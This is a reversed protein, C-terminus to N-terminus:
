RSAAGTMAFPRVHSVLLATFQQMHVMAAWHGGPLSIYEKHPAQIKEFYAAALETPAEWDNDGQIIFVPVQFAYGLPRVDMHSDPVYHTEFISTQIARYWDIMEGITLEPSTFVYGPESAPNFGWFARDSPDGYRDRVIEDVTLYDRSSRYPAPGVHELTMLTDTDNRERALRRLKLDVASEHASQAVLFGTGVFAYFLDPREKVMHVGLASGLSHGLLILKDQHLRHLAYRTVEFGDDVLRQYPLDADLRVGRGFTRGAGRQDWQVVTFQEELPSYLKTLESQADSPGGHLILLTPNSLHQGRIRIWQPVGGITVFGGWDIGDPSRIVLERAYRARISANLCVMGVAALLVVLVCAAFTYLV